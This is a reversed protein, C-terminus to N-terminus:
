TPQRPHEAARLGEDRDMYGHYHVVKGGEVTWIGLANLAVPAGSGRGRGSETFLTVIRGDETEHIEELEFRYGEWTGLWLRFFEAVGRHGCFPEVQDLMPVKWTIDEALLPFPDEDEAFRRCIEAVVQVAATPV